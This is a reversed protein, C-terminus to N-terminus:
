NESEHKLKYLAYSYETELLAIRADVQKLEDTLMNHKREEEPSLKLQEDRLLRARRLERNLMSRFREFREVLGFEDPVTAAGFEMEFAAVELAFSIEDVIDQSIIGPEIANMAKGIHAYYQIGLPEIISVIDPHVTKNNSPDAFDSTNSSVLLCNKIDNEDVYESLELLVLADAMNNKSSHFPAQGNIALDVAKLRAADSIQTRIVNGHGFILEDVIQSTGEAHAAIRGEDELLQNFRTKLSRIVTSDLMEGADLLLNSTNKMESYWDIARTFERVRERFAERRKRVVKQDKNRSWELRVLSPVILTVRQRDIWDSLLELLEENTAALHIWDCTDIMMYHM